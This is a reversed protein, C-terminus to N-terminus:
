CIFGYKEYIKQLEEYRCSMTIDNLVDAEDRKRAKQNNKRNIV